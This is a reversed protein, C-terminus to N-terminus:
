QAHNCHTGQHHVALCLDVPLQSNAGFHTHRPTVTPTICPFVGNCAATRAFFCPCCIDLQQELVGAVGHSLIQQYAVSSKSDQDPNHDQTFAVASVGLKWHLKCAKLVM